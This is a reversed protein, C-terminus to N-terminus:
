TPPAVIAPGAIAALATFGEAHIHALDEAYRGASDPNAGTM